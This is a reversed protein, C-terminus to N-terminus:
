EEIIRGNRVRRLLQIREKRSTKRYATCGGEATETDGKMSGTLILYGCCIQSHMTTRYLCTRCFGKKIM